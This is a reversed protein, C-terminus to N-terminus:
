TSRERQENETRVGPAPTLEDLIAFLEDIRQSAVYRLELQVGITGAM